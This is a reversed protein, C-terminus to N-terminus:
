NSGSAPRAIRFSIRDDMYDPWFNNRCSVRAWFGSRQWTGGRVIRNGNYSGDAPGTPNDYPVAYGYGANPAEYSFWDNCWEWANGAMDYLGYGNPYYYGAYTLYPHHSWGLPNNTPTNFDSGYNAQSFDITNSAWPYDYYPDHLGGRAAYEWEHETPLRYGNKSFDCEWTTPNYCPEYGEYTSRWNCYAAAGYWSLEVIPFGAMDRGERTRLSFTGDGDNYLIMSDYGGFNVPTYPFSNSDDSAAYVVDGHETGIVVKVDARNLFDCYAQNTMEGRGIYFPNIYVAHVPREQGYGTGLHDGILCEGGPIYVMDPPDIEGDAWVAGYRSDLPVSLSISVVLGLVFVRMLITM